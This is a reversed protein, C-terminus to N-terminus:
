TFKEDSFFMREVEEEGLDRSLKFPNIKSRFLLENVYINGLGSIVKQDMLLDKVRRIKNKFISKFETLKIELADKGLEKLEQIHM